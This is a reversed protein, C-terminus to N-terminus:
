DEPIEFDTLLLTLDVGANSLDGFEGDHLAKKLLHRKMALFPSALEYLETLADMEFVMDDKAEEIDEAVNNALADSYDSIRDRVRRFQRLVDKHARRRDDVLPKRQLAYTEISKMAMNHRKGSATKPAVNGDKSFVFFGSPNSDVCPNILLRVKEEQDFKQTHYRVRKREDSLPFLDEKGLKVEEEEELVAHYQRRNCLSCSVLLNNWDAGLWYYGPVLKKGQADIRGKPRFHEIDENSTAPFRSECYACKEHFIKVLLEVLKKDKYAGFTPSTKDTIKINGSFNNRDGYFGVMKETEATSRPKMKGDPAKTTDKLYVDLKPTNSSRKVPIM